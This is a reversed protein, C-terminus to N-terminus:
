NERTAVILLEPKPPKNPRSASANKSEAVILIGTIAHSQTRIADTYENNKDGIIGHLSQVTVNKRGSIREYAPVVRPLMKKLEATLDTEMEKLLKAEITRTPM